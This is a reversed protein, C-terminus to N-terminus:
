VFSLCRVPCWKMWCPTQLNPFSLKQFANVLFCVVTNSHKCEAENQLGFGISSGVGGGGGTCEGGVMVM